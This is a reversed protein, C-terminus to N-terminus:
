PTDLKVRYGLGVKITSKCPNCKGCPKTQSDHCFWTLNMLDIFDEDEAIKKMEPKTFCVLPFLINKFLYKRYYDVRKSNIRWNKSYKNKSVEILQDMSFFRDLDEHTISIELPKITQALCALWYYQKGLKIQKKLAKHMVKLFPNKPIDAKEIFIIPLLTAQTKTFHEKIKDQLTNLTELEKSTSERKRDIVYYPQITAGRKYLQIVRFTSDWGGTWLVNNIKDM